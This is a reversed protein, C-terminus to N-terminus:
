FPKVHSSAATGPELRDRIFILLEDVDRLNLLVGFSRKEGVGGTLQARCTGVRKHRALLEFVPAYYVADEKSLYGITDAGEEVVRIANPDFANTPEPMLVATFSRGSASINRLRGQYSAEGVINFNCSGAASGIDFSELSVKDPTTFAPSARKRQTAPEATAAQQKFIASAVAHALRAERENRLDFTYPTGGRTPHVILSNRDIGITLVKAWTITLRKNGDYFIGKDGIDLQGSDDNRATERCVDRGRFYTPQGDSMTFLAQVPEGRKLGDIYALVTLMQEAKAVEDALERQDLDGATAKAKFVDIAVAIQEASGSDVVARLELIAAVLATQADATTAASSGAAGGFLSRVFARLV